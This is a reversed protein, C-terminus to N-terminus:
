LGRAGENNCPQTTAWASSARCTAGPSNRARASCTRGWAQPCDSVLSLAYEAAQQEAGIFVLLLVGEKAFRVVSRDLVGQARALFADRALPSELAFSVLTAPLEGAPGLKEILVPVQSLAFLSHATDFPTRGMLDDNLREVTCRLERNDREVAATRRCVADNRLSMGVCAIVSLVLLVAITVGM